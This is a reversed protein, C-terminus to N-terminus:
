ANVYWPEIEKLGSIENEGPSGGGKWVVIIGQFDKGPAFFPFSEKEQKPQGGSPSGAKAALHLALEAKYYKTEITWFVVSDDDPDLPLPFMKVHALLVLSTIRALFLSTHVM